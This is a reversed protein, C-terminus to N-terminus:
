LNIQRWKELSANSSQHFSVRVFLIIDEIIGFWCHWFTEYLIYCIYKLIFFVFLTLIYSLFWSLMCYYKKMCYLGCFHWLQQHKLFDCIYFRYALATWPSCSFLIECYQWETYIQGHLLVYMVCFLERTWNSQSSM